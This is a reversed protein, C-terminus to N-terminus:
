SYKSHTLWHDNRGFLNSDQYSSETSFINLTQMVAILWGAMNPSQDFKTKSYAFHTAELYNGQLKTSVPGTTYSSNHNLGFQQRRVVVCLLRILYSLELM